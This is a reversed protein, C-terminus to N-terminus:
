DETLTLSHLLRKENALEAGGKAENPRKNGNEDYSTAQRAPYKADTFAEHIQIGNDVIDM